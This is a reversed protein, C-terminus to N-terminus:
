LKTNTIGCAEGTPFTCGGRRLPNSSRPFVKHSFTNKKDHPLDSNKAAQAPSTSAIEGCSYIIIQVFM